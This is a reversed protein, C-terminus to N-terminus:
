AISFHIAFNRTQLLRNAVSPIRIKQNFSETPCEDSLRPLAEVGAIVLQSFLAGNVEIRALGAATLREQQTAMDQMVKMAEFGGFRERALQCRFAPQGTVKTQEAVHEHLLAPQLFGSLSILRHQIQFGAQMGVGAGRMEAPQLAIQGTGDLRHLQGNRGGTWLVCFGGSPNVGTQGGILELGSIVIFGPSSGVDREGILVVVGRGKQQAAAHFQTFSFTVVCSRLDLDGRM